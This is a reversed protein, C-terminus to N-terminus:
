EIDGFEIEVNPIPLKYVEESNLFQATNPLKQVNLRKYYYFLQGEGIFERRYEDNIEENLTESDFSDPDLPSLGRHIKISNLYQVAEEIHPECESAILYMESVKILPIRTNYTFKTIRKTTSSSNEFWFNRYDTNIGAPFIQQFTSTKISLIQPGVNNYNEPFFKDAIRTKLDKIVLGFIQESPFIYDEKELTSTTSSPFEFLPFMGSAIVEKASSLANEKDDIYLYIRAMLATAAYYNFRYSRDGEILSFENITAKQPGYPDSDALLKRAEKLDALAKEAVEKVSSQQFPINTYSDAYPIALTSLGTSPLAGFLRLLDFHLFARLALAEGKIVHYNDDTFVTQNEDAKKLLINLNVIARYQQKWIKLLRNEENVEHFDYNAANLYEHGVTTKINDYVQALVELYAMSLESGYVSEDTMLGYVGIIADRFGTQQSFLVAAKMETKPTVDLWKNCGSVMILPFLIAIYFFYKRMLNGM